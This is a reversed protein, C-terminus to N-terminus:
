GLGTEVLLGDESYGVLLIGPHGGNDFIEARPMYGGGGLGGTGEAHFCSMVGEVVADKVFLAVELGPKATHTGILGKVDKLFEM